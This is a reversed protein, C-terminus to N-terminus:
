VIHRWTKPDNMKATWKDEVSQPLPAHREARWVALGVAYVLDAFATDRLAGLNTEKVTPPRMKFTQLESALAPLLDLGTAAELRRSQMALQLIGVLDPRGVRWDDMKATDQAEGAAASISVAIPRLGRKTMLDAVARGTANVDVVLDAGGAQDLEDLKPMLDRVLWAVFDTVSTNLPLRDLQRLVIAETDAGWGTSRVTRQEVVAYATPESAEGISVGVVYHHCRNPNRRAVELDLDIDSM